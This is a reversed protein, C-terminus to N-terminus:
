LIRCRYNTAYLHLCDQALVKPGLPGRRVMSADVMMMVAVRYGSQIGRFAAVMEFLLLGLRKTLCDRPSSTGVRKLFALSTWYPPLFICRGRLNM